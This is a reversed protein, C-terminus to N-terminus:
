SLGGTNGNQEDEDDDPYHMHYNSHGKKSYFIPKELTKNKRRIENKVRRYIICVVLLFALSLVLLTIAHNFTLTFSYLRSQDKKPQNKLNEIKETREIKETKSEICNCINSYFAILFFVLLLQRTVTKSWSFFNSM